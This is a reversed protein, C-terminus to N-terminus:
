LKIKRWGANRDKLHWAGYGKDYDDACQFDYQILSPKFAVKKSKQGLCTSGMLVYIDGTVGLEM